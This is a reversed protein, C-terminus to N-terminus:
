RRLTVDVVFQELLLRPPVSTSKLMRDVNRLRSMAVEIEEMTFARAERIRFYVAKPSCGIAKAIEGESAGQELLDLTTAALRFPRELSTVLMLPLADKSIKRDSDILADFLRGLIVLSEATNRTMVAGTFDWIKHGKLRQVMDEVDNHYIRSSNESHQILKEVESVIAEVSNGLSEALFSVTRQEVEYGRRRFLDAIFRAVENANTLPSFDFIADKTQLAKYMRSRKDVNAATLVLLNRRDPGTLYNRLAEVEPSPGDDDKKGKKSKIAFLADTDEVVVVRGVSFMDATRVHMLWEEPSTARGDLTESNLSRQKASLRVELTIALAKKLFTPSDGHYLVVPPVTRQELRKRLEALQLTAPDAM